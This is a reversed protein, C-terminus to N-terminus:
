LMVDGSNPGLTQGTYLDGDPQSALFLATPVIEEVRGFRPIALENQKKKKWEEDLGSILNTEIPGPAICNANIGYVGLELAISKTFGIVGAKAAAYHSLGVGGKQGLQSAINIIRGYRQKIMHPVSFRTTLFVSRLDVEIMRDWMSVEMDVINSQTLIGANNVLIDVRGFKSVATDILNRATQQRSVDGEIAIVCNTGGLSKLWLQIDDASQGYYNVVLSAGESAFREAIGRGIGSGAGTIVAVRGELKM